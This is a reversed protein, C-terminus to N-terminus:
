ITDPVGPVGPVGGCSAERKVKALLGDVNLPIMAPRKVWFIRRSTISANADSALCAAPIRCNGMRRGISCPMSTCRRRSGDPTLARRSTRGSSRPCSTFRRAGMLRPVDFARASTSPVTTIKGTGHCDFCVGQRYSYEVRGSGGCRECTEGDGLTWPKFRSEQYREFFLRVQGLAREEEANGISGRDRLWDNFCRAAAALAAGTPWGTLGAATALEGAAGMFGFPAAVRWVQGSADAPVQQGLFGDRIRRLTTVNGLCDQSLAAVFARGAHGYHQKVTERLHDAFAKSSDAGHLAEFLGFGAGA